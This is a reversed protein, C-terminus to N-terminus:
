LSSMVVRRHIAFMLVSDNFFFSKKSQWAFKELLFTAEDKKKVASPM